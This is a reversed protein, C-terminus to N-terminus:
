ARAAGEAHSEEKKKAITAQFDMLLKREQEAQKKADEVNFRREVLPDAVGPIVYTPGKFLVPSCFLYFERDLWPPTWAGSRCIFLQDVERPEMAKPMSEENWVMPHCMEFQRVQPAKAGYPGGEEWELLGKWQPYVMVTSTPVSLATALLWSGCEAQGKDLLDQTVKVCGDRYGADAHADFHLVDIKKAKLAKARQIFVGAAAGHSEAITVVTKKTLKYGMRRLASWFKSPGPECAALPMEKTLDKGGAFAAQARIQWLHEIHFRSEAHGWDWEAKEEVFFDWDVSVFLPTSRKTM